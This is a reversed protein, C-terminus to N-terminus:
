SSQGRMGANGPGSQLVLATQRGTSECLQPPGQSTTGRNIVWVPPQPRAKPEAWVNLFNQQMAKQAIILMSWPKSLIGGTPSIRM